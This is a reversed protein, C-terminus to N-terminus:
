QTQIAYEIVAPQLPQDESFLSKKTELRAIKDIVEFGQVVRGFVAYGWENATRGAHNHQPNDKLNIFFETSGSHTHNKRWMGLTYQDNTLGNDAESQVTRRSLKLARAATTTGAQIQQGRVLRHFVTDTYFGSNVHELFNAVTKPAREANLELAIVGFGKVKLEVQAKKM